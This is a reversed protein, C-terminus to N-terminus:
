NVYGNQKLENFLKHIREANRKGPHLVKSLSYFAQSANYGLELYRKLAYCDAKHETKYFMHGLEHLLIFMRVQPAYSYFRKGVEIIAPEIGTLIRAPTDNAGLSANFVIKYEAQRAREPDYDKISCKRVVLPRSKIVGRNPSTYVGEFLTNFNISPTLGDLDRDIWINKGWYIRVRNPYPYDFFFTNTGRQLKIKM